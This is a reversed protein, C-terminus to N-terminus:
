QEPKRVRNYASRTAVFVAAYLSKVTDQEEIPEQVPNGKLHIRKARGNATQRVSAAAEDGTSVVGRTLDELLEPNLNKGHVEVTTVEGGAAETFEEAPKQILRQVDFPNSFTATFRFKTIESASRLQKIFDDPDPIPDVVIQCGAMAPISTSNLLKELKTAIEKASLSVGTKKVIGCAQTEPDFVGFTYPASQVEAEIFDRSVSDFQPVKLAATRGMKFGLGGGSVFEPKAIRWEAGRAVPAQPTSHLADLIVDSPERPKVFLDPQKNQECRVRLLHIWLM